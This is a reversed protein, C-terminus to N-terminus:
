QTNASPAKSRGSRLGKLAAWGQQIDQRAMMFILGGYVVCGLGIALLIILTDNLTGHATSLWISVIVAMLAAAPFVRPYVFFSAGFRGSTLRRLMILVLPTIIITNILLAAAAGAVDFQVGVTLLIALSVFSAFRIALSIDTRGRAIIMLSGMVEPVRVIGVLAYIQTVLAAAYWQEGFLLPVAIPAILCLGVFAPLTAVTLFRLSKDFLTELGATDTGIRSAAPMTLRLLPTQLVEIALDVLRRGITFIGVATAGLTQGIILNPLQSTLTALLSQGTMPLSFSLMSRLHMSSFHLRPTWKAGFLVFLAEILNLTIQLGVLSWVGYGALAMSVGVAGAIITSVTARIALFRYNLDRELIAKPVAGISALAVILCTWEALPALRSEDFFAAVWGSASWVVAAAALGLGSVTWFATDLHLAEVDKRQIIAGPLGASITQRLVLPVMMALGTLGYAEPGLLRALLVMVLFNVAHRTWTEMGSWLAGVAITRGRMTM